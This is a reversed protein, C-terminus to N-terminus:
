VIKVRDEKEALQKEIRAAVIKKLLRVFLDLQWQVLREERHEAALNSQSAMMEESAKAGKAVTDSTTRQVGRIPGESTLMSRTRSLARRPPKGEQQNSNDSSNTKELQLVPRSSVVWYTQINGKGKAHVLEERAKVWYAKGAEKLLKATSASVHIRNIEGTSEMRSATNVTDGFLQFRSKEGQLVGATVPGSNMGTRLCLDGTDPGLSIELGKTVEGMQIMCERAFKAMRV